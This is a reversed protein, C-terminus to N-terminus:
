RLGSHRHTAFTIWTYQMLCSLHESLRRLRRITFMTVPVKLHRKQFDTQLSCLISQQKTANVPFSCQQTLIMAKLINYLIYIM